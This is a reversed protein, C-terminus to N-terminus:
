PNHEVPLGRVIWSRSRRPVTTQIRLIFDGVQDIVFDYRYQGTAITASPATATVTAGDPRVVTIAVTSPATLVGLQRVDYFVSVDSNVEIDLIRQSM